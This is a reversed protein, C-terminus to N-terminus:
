PAPKYVNRGFPSKKVWDGTNCYVTENVELCITLPDIDDDLPNTDDLVYEDIYVGPDIAILCEERLLNCTIREKGDGTEAMQYLSLRNGNVTGKGDFEYAIDGDDNKITFILDVPNVPDNEQAADGLGTMETMKFRAYDQDQHITNIFILGNIAVPIVCPTIGDVHIEFEPNPGLGIYDYVMLTYEGTAPITTVIKPDTYLGGVGHPIGNNDDASAVFPLSGCNFRSVQTSDTVIGQCIHMAPDMDDTTRHVEITVIDGANACFSYYEFLASNNINRYATNGAIGEGIGFGTNYLEQNYTIPTQIAVDNIVPSLQELKAPNPDVQAQVMTAPLMVMPAVLGAM